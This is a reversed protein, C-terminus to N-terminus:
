ARIILRYVRGNTRPDTNDSSSFYVHRGWHSYRGRGHRRIDEHPMHPSPLPHDNELLILRSGGEQDSIIRRPSPARFCHGSDPVVRRLRRSFRGAHFARAWNLLRRRAIEKRWALGAVIRLVHLSALLAERQDAWYLRVREWVSSGCAPGDLREIVFPRAAIGALQTNDDAM